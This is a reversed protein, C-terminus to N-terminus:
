ATVKEKPRKSPAAVDNGRELYGLVIDELSPEHVAWRDGLVLPGDLKVLTSVQKEARSQHIVEHVKSALAEEGVPGIVIRHGALIQDVEGFIQMRGGYVLLMSDCVRELDGLIHSSLLVAAGTEAVTEMLAQLFERRALPDFAAIPEDLLLLDPRKAVALTLAVQAQQGGSLRGVRKKMPLGLKEIRRRAFEDDWRQKMLKGMKLTEEVSFGRYLPHEQAVFGVRPLVQEAEQTPSSGLVQVTGETPALLGIALELMTSKGAGNPGVLATVQGPRLSFTCEKLAWHSGYKKGLNETRLVENM